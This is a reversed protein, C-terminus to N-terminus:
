LSHGHSASLSCRPPDSVAAGPSYKGGAPCNPLVSGRLYNLVTGSFEYTDTPLRKNELAWQSVAGDIQKLNMACVNKPASGSRIFSPTNVVAILVVFGLGAAWFWFNSTGPVRKASDKPDLTPDIPEPM